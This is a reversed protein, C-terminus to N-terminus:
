NYPELHVAVALGDARAAAVVAPLRMDEASGRGWWSVVIEDIGASKIEQMQRAIVARDSSSFVGGAPYYQSAIDSPPTHGNQSWHEYSGDFAPTGYWPYYFASVRVHAANAVDPAALALLACVLVFCRM